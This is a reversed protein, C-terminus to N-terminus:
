DLGKRLIENSFFYTLRDNFTNLLSYFVCVHKQIKKLSQKFKGILEIMHKIFM